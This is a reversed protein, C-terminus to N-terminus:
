LEENKDYWYNCKNCRYINPKKKNRKLYSGCIPCRTSLYGKENKIHKKGHM